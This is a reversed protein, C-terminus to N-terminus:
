PWARCPTSLASIIIARRARMMMSLIVASSSRYGFFQAGESVCHTEDWMNMESRRYWRAWDKHIDDSKAFVVDKDSFILVDNEFVVLLDRVEKAQVSGDPRREARYLNPYSWSTLFTKRCLRALYRESQNVGASRRPQSPYKRVQAGDHDNGWKKNREEIARRERKERSKRGV